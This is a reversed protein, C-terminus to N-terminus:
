GILGDNVPAKCRGCASGVDASVAFGVDELDPDFCQTFVAALIHHSAAMVQRSSPEEIAMMRDQVDMRLGRPFKPLVESSLESDALKFLVALSRVHIHNIYRRTFESVMGASLPALFALGLINQLLFDFLRVSHCEPCGALERLNEPSITARKCVPCQAAGPTVGEVLKLKVDGRIQMVWLPAITRDLAESREADTATGRLDNELRDRNYSSLNERVRNRLSLPAQQLILGPSGERMMDVLVEQLTLEDLDSFAEFSVLEERIAEMLNTGACHPCRPYAKKLQAETYTAM